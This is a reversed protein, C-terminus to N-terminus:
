RFVAKGETQETILGFPHIERVIYIRTERDFDKVSLTDGIDLVKLDMSKSEDDPDYSYYFIDGYAFLRTTPGYTDLQRKSKTSSFTM